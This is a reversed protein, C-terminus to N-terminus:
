ECGETTCATVTDIQTQTPNAFVWQPCPGIEVSLGDASQEVFALVETRPEIEGCWSSACDIQLILPERMQTVFGDPGLLRGDFIAPVAMDAEMEGDARPPVPEFEFRGLVVSYVAEAEAADAYSGEVSPARCSLAVAPQALSAALAAIAAVTNRRTM